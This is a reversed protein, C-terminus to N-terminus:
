KKGGADKLIKVVEAQGNYSAVHLPTQGYKNKANVNAGSALLRKVMGAHGEGSAWHLPTEGDNNKANVNAGSALLRKVEAVDGRGIAKLLYTEGLTMDDETLEGEERVASAGAAAPLFTMLAFILPILVKEPRTM